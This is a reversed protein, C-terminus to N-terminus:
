YVDFSAAVKEFLPAVQSWRPEPASINLTFLKGRRLIASTLNHRDGIPLQVIYELTYYTKDETERAEAAVLEAQRDSGSPAIVTSLLRQGVATPNGLDSIQANGEVDSVVVSVNETEEILDRFVVDAVGSVKVPIWGNPYRFTYGDLNDVYAKLGGTGSVCGQLTLCLLILAIAAMRKLM